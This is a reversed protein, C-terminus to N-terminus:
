VTDGMSRGRDGRSLIQLDSLNTRLLQSDLGLKDVCENFNIKTM